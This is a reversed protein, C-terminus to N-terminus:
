SSERVEKDKGGEALLVQAAEFRRVSVLRTVEDDGVLCLAGSPCSAVCQPGGDIGRCLDCKVASPLVGIEWDIISSTSESNRPTKYMTGAVGAVSTGSPYIAGYPCAIACMKCGICRQEDVMVVGDVRKIVGVPCVFACPADECHHCVTASTKERFSVVSLRPQCQRGVRRHAEICAARCTGCGTCRQPNPVVRSSM